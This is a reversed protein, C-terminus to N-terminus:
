SFDYYQLKQSPNLRQFVGPDVNTIICAISMDGYYHVIACRETSTDNLIVPAVEDTVEDGNANRFGIRSEGHFVLFGRDKVYNMRIVRSWAFEPLTVDYSYVAKNEFTKFHNPIEPDPYILM